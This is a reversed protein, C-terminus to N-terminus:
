DNCAMQQVLNIGDLWAIGSCQFEMDRRQSQVSSICPSDKWGVHILIELRLQEHMTNVQSGEASSVNHIHICAQRQSDTSPWIANGKRSAPHCCWCGEERERIVRKRGPWQRLVGEVVGAARCRHGPCLIKGKSVHHVTIYAREAANCGQPM